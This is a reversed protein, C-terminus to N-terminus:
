IGLSSTRCPRVAHCAIRRRHRAGCASVARISNLEAGGSATLSVICVSDRTNFDQHLGVLWSSFTRSTGGPVVIDIHDFVDSPM